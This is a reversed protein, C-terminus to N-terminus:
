KAHSIQLPARLGLNKAATGGAVYVKCIHALSSKALRMADTRDDAEYTLDWHILPGAKQNPTQLLSFARPDKVLENVDSLKLSGSADRDDVNNFNKTTILLEMLCVANQESCTSRGSLEFLSASPERPTGDPERRISFASPKATPVGAQVKYRYHSLYRWIAYANSSPQQAERTSPLASEMDLYFM